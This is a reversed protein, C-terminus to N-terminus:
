QYQKRWEEYPPVGAREAFESDLHMQVGLGLGQSNPNKALLKKRIAAKLDEIEQAALTSEIEQIKANKYARYRDALKTEREKRKEEQRNKERTEFTKIAADVYKRIGIMMDPTYKTAAAKELSYDVVFRSKEM